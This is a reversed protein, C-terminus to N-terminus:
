GKKVKASQGKAVEAKPVESRKEITPPLVRSSFIRYHRLM